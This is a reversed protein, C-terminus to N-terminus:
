VLRLGIQTGLIFKLAQAQGASSGVNLGFIFGGSLVEWDLKRLQETHFDRFSLWGSIHESLEGAWPRLSVERNKKGRM